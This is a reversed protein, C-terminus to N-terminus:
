TKKKKKKNQEADAEEKKIKMQDRMMESGDWGCKKNQKM